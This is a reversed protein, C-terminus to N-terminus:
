KEEYIASNQINQSFHGHREAGLTQHTYTAEKGVKEGKGGKGRKGGKDWM